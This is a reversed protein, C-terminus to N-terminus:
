RAKAPKEQREYQFEPMSKIADKTAGPLVIRGQDYKFQNVPIAVDHRGLGVFGGAGVVAFSVANEPTVILDRVSGVKENAENYVPKGLVQKKVSVGKIIADLETVSVGLAAHGAVQASVQPAAAVFATALLVATLRKM